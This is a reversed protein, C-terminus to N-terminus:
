GYVELWASFTLLMSIAYGNAANPHTFFDSLFTELQYKEVFNHLKLGPTLLWNELGEQGQPNLFQV